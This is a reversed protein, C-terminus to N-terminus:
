GVKVRGYDRQSVGKEPGAGYAYARRLVTVTCGSVPDVYTGEIADQLRKRATRKEQERRKKLRKAAIKGGMSFGQNM